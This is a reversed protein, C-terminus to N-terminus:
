DGGTHQAFGGACCLVCHVLFVGWLAWALWLVAVGGVGFLAFACQFWDGGALLGVFLPHVGSVYRGCEQSASVLGWACLCGWCLCHLAVGTDVGFARLPIVTDARYLCGLGACRCSSWQHPSGM